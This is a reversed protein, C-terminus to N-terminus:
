RVRVLSWLWTEPFYSRIKDSAEPSGAGPGKQAVPEGIEALEDDYYYEALCIYM